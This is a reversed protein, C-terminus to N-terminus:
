GSLRCTHICVNQLHLKFLICYFQKPLPFNCYSPPTTSVSSMSSCSTPSSSNCPYLFTLILLIFFLFHLIFYSKCSFISAHFFFTYSLVTFHPLPSLVLSCSSSPRLVSLQRQIVWKVCQLSSKFIDIWLSSSLISSSMSFLWFVFFIQFQMYDWTADNETIGSEKFCLDIQVYNEDGPDM